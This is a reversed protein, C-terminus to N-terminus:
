RCASNLGAAELCQVNREMEGDEVSQCGAREGKYIAGDKRNNKQVFSVNMRNIEATEKANGHESEEEPVM